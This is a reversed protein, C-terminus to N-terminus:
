QRPIHESLRQRAIPRHTVINLILLEFANKVVICGGDLLITGTSQYTFHLCKLTLFTRMLQISGM